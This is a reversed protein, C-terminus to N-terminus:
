VEPAVDGSKVVKSVLSKSLNLHNAIEVQAYGYLHANIIAFNRDHRNQM